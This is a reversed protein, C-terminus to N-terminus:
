KKQMFNDLLKNLKNTNESKFDHRIERSEDTIKAHEEAGTGCSEGEVVAWLGALALPLVSHRGRVAAVEVEGGDGVIDGGVHEHQVEAAIANAAHRIGGKEPVIQRVQDFQVQGVALHLM